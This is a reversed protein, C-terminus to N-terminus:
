PQTLAVLLYGSGNVVDLSSIATPNYATSAPVTETSSHGSAWSGVTESGGDDAHVVLHCVTASPLGTLTLWVVTGTAGPTLTASAAVHTSPNTASVTVTTPAPAAPPTSTGIYLGVATVAAAVALASAILHRRLRRLGRLGGTRAEPARNRAAPLAAPATTPPSEEFRTHRLLGTLPAMELLQARCHRCGSIHRTMTSQEVPDLVGLLYASLSASEQCAM